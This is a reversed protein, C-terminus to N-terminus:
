EFAVTGNPLQEDLTEAGARTVATNRLDCNNLSKLQSLHKLGSDTVSTMQLNLVFLTKIKGIHALGADTVKTDALWLVTVGPLKSIQEVGADGVQTSNLYLGQVSRIQELHEMGKDTIQTGVLQLSELDPLEKLHVLGDDSVTSGNLYLDRLRPHGAFRKMDDDSINASELKVRFPEIKESPLEAPSEWSMSKKTDGVYASVSGGQELVWTTLARGADQAPETTNQASDAKEVEGVSARETPNKDSGDVAAIEPVNEPTCAVLFLLPLTFLQTCRIM